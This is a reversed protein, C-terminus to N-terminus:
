YRNRYTNISLQLYTEAEGLLPKVEYFDIGYLKPCDLLSSLLNFRNIMKAIEGEENLLPKKYAISNIIRNGFNKVDSLYRYVLMEARQNKSIQM